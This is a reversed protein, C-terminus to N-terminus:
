NSGEDSGALITGIKTSVKTGPTVPPGGIVVRDSPALGSYIVRLGYRLGGTQVKKEKLVGDEGAVLVVRDTQDVSVAADPVLLARHSSQLNVRVRGFEGPTLFSDPNPVTARAHITGSARNLSNDLFNLTGKRVFQDEDSLAIDVRNGLVSKKSSRDRQFNLYDGESMDFNLYIPDISVITALPTTSGGGGRNGSVLNGVSILHTGMRGSFPAYVQTRDLDFKADRFRAEAEDLAAEASRQEAFRQEVNELTGADTKQLTQARALETKALELRARATAVQATSEDFKIRYPTPDITFLLAGKRVIDGDKFGIYTLIGGVQARLEVQDVPSFQGLFQLRGHLDRELAQAVTVVNAPVAAAVPAERSSKSGFAVIAM